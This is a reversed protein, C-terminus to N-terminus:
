RGAIDRSMSLYEHKLLIRDHRVHYLVNQFNSLVLSFLLSSTTVPVGRGQAAEAM